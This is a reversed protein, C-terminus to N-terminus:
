EMRGQETWNKLIEELYYVNRAPNQVALKATLKAASEVWAYGYTDVLQIFKEV